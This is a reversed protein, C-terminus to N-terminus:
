APWLPRTWRTRRTFDCDVCVVAARTKSAIPKVGALITSKTTRPAAKSSATEAALRKREILSPQHSDDPTGTPDRTLTPDLKLYHKNTDDLIPAPILPMAEFEAPTMRLPQHFECSVNECKRVQFGYDTLTLHKAAFKKFLPLKFV